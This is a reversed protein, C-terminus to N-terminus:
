SIFEQYNQRKNLNIYIAKLYKNKTFHKLLNNLSSMYSNRLGQKNLKIPDQYLRAFIDYKFKKFQKTLIISNLTKSKTARYISKAFNLIKKCNLSSLKKLNKFSVGNLFKVFCTM